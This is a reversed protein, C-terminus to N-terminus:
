TVRTFPIDDHFCIGIQLFVHGGFQSPIRRDFGGGDAHRHLVAHHRQAAVQFGEGVLVGGRPCQPTHGADLRNREFQIHLKREIVRAAIGVDGGDGLLGQLPVRQHRPLFDPQCDIMAPDRQLAFDFPVILPM